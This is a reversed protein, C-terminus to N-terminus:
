FKEEVIRINANYRVELGELKTIKQRSIDMEKEQEKLMTELKEKRKEAEKKKQRDEYTTSNEMGAIFDGEMKIGNEMKAKAEEMNALIDREILSNMGCAWLKKYFIGIQEKKFEKKNM